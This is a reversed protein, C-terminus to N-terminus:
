LELTFEGHRGNYVLRGGALLDRGILARVSRVQLPAEIVKVQVSSAPDFSFRVWYEMVRMDTSSPTDIQVSGVANLGLEEAVDHQIISRGSGTDILAM